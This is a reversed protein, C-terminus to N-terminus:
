IYSGKELYLEEAHKRAETDSLLCILGRQDWWTSFSSTWFYGICLEQVGEIKILIEGNYYMEWRKHAVSYKSLGLKKCNAAWGKDYHVIDSELKGHFYWWGNNDREDEPIDDYETIADTPRNGYRWDAIVRLIKRSTRKM